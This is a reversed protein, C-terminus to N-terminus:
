ALHDVEWGATTLYDAILQRHCQAVNKEACLLCLPPRLSSLRETLVEGALELLRAYHARWDVHDRFLNGLETVAVYGIGGATLLREIGKDPTRAKVYVGLSARDPRLRVDVVTRVGRAVLLSVLDDPARGGYGVTYCKM